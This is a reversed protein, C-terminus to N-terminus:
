LACIRKPTGLGSDPLTGMGRWAADCPEFYKQVLQQAQLNGERTVVSPYLNFVGAKGRRKVLAYIADMLQQPEFGAVVFPIKYKESLNEFIKSGTVVSVHGPALFGDINGANKCVWDIVPPMTKLSTLVQLNDIGQELAQSILLAYAPATTEFGVAAFVYRTEPHEKALTLLDMPSYLM